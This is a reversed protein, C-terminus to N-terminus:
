TSTRGGLARRALAVGGAGALVWPGLVIVPDLPHHVVDARKQGLRSSLGGHTLEAHAGTEALVNDPHEIVPRDKEEVRVRYPGRYAMARMTVELHTLHRGV